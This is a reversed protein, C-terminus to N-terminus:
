HKNIKTAKSNGALEQEDNYYIYFEFAHSYINQPDM